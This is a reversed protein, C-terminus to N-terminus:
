GMGWPNEDGAPPPSSPRPGPYGLDGPGSLSGPTGPPLSPPEPERRVDVPRRTVFRHVLAAYALMMAVDVAAFQWELTSATLSDELSGTSATFALSVMNNAVHLAVPAELGGTRWALWSAVLGFALRDGFLWVDQVGHALAFLGATVAGAVATGVVPRSFWAALAQSLYGRFGVEEAAAQLPTTFAIVALLGVLTGAAPVSVETSSSSPLLFSAAFFAVVVVSALVLLRGLLSWRVRGTVSALLGVPRRHVVLVAILAAPVMVAIVLNNALLGIATDPSLATDSFPDDVTGTLSAVVLAALIVAVAGSVLTLVFLLLGLLPQWWPVRDTRLLQPYRDGPALQRVAPDAM